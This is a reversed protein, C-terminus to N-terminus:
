QPSGEALLFSVIEMLQHPDIPKPVFDVAGERAALKAYEMNWFSSVIVIPVEPWMERVQSMFTVAVMDPLFFDLLILDPRQDRIADLAERGTGASRLDRDQGRLLKEMLSRVAADDEVILIRKM